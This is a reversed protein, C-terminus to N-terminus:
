AYLSESLNINNYRYDLSKNYYNDDFIANTKIIMELESYNVAKRNKHLSLIERKFNEKGYKLIDEDLFKSSGYYDRWNSETYKGKIRKWFYKRGIYKKKNILNTILYVFGYFYNHDTLPENRWLWNM